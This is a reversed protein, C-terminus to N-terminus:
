FYNTTLVGTCDTISTLLNHSVRNTPFTKLAEMRKGFSAHLLETIDM